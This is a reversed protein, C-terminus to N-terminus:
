DLNAEISVPGADGRHGPSYIKKIIEANDTFTRVLIVQGSTRFQLTYRFQTDTIRDLQGEFMQFDSLLHETVYNGSSHFNGASNTDHLLQETNSILVSAALSAWKEADSPNAAYSELAMNQRFERVSYIAPYSYEVELKPAGTLAGSHFVRIEPVNFNVTFGDGTNGKRPYLRIRKGELPDGPQIWVLRCSITGELPQQSLAYPGEVNALNVNFPIEKFTRPRVQGPPADSFPTPSEMKGASVFVRPLQGQPPAQAPGMFFGPTGPNNLDSQLRALVRGIFAKIIM